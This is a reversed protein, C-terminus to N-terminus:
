ETPPTILTGGAAFAVVGIKVGKPQKAVFDRVADKAADIRTPRVDTSAMSQSSDIVLMITGSSSPSPFVAHPRAMATALATVALLFLAAPVHRRIRRTPGVADRVLLASSYRIPYRRRRLQQCIYAFALLPAFALGVLAAPWDFSM